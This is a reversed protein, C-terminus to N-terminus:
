QNGEPVKITYKTRGDSTKFPKGPGVKKSYEAAEQPSSFTPIEGGGQPAAQPEETPIGRNRKAIDIPSDVPQASAEKIKKWGTALTKDGSAEVNTDSASKENNDLEARLPIAVFADPVYGWSQPSAFKRLSPSNDFVSQEEASINDVQENLFDGMGKRWKAATHGGGAVETFVKREAEQLSKGDQGM